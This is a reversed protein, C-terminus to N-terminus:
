RKNNGNKVFEVVEQLLQEPLIKEMCEFTKIPCHMGGHKSCPRCFLKKEIIKHRVKYPYFGFDQVTPGFIAIVPTDTASALHLPASDNTVLLLCKRLLASSQLLNLQGAM